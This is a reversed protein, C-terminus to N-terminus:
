NEVLPPLHRPSPWKCGGFHGIRPPPQHGRGNSSCNAMCGMWRTPLLLAELFASSTVCFVRWYAFNHPLMRDNLAEGVGVVLRGVPSVDPGGDDSGDFFALAM